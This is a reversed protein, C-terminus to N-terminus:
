GSRTLALLVPEGMLWFCFRCFPDDLNPVRAGSTSIGAPPGGPGAM